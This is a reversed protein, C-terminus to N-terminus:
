LGVYCFLLYEGDNLSMNLRNALGSWAFVFQECFPLDASLYALFCVRDWVCKVVHSFELQYSCIISQSLKVFHELM